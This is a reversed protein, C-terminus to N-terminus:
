EEENKNFKEWEDFMKKYTTAIDMSGTVANKRNLRIAGSEGLFIYYVGRSDKGAFVRYKSTRSEVEVCERGWNVQTDTLFMAYKEQLKLNKYLKEKPM